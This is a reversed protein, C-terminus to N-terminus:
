SSYFGFKLVNSVQLGTHSADGSVGSRRKAETSCGTSIGKMRDNPHTPPDPPSPVWSTVLPIFRRFEYSICMRTSSSSRHTCPASPVAIHSVYKFIYERGQFIFAREIHCTHRNLAAELADAELWAKVAFQAKDMDNARGDNRM